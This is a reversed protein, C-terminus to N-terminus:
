RASSVSGSSASTRLRTSITTENATRTPSRSRQSPSLRQAELRVDLEADAREVEVDIEADRPALRQGDEARVTGALRGNQSGQSPQDRDVIAADGDVTREDVIRHRADEHRGLLTRDADHELVIQQESVKRRELVDGEAQPGPAGRSGLRPPVGGFPQSTDSEGIVGGVRRSSERTTLRLTDGESTRQRGFWMQEQEVLRQSREIGACAAVHATIQAPVQLREVPDSDHDGVIWHVGVRQGIADGHHVNPPDSLEARDCLDRRM